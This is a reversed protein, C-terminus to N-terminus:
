DGLLTKKRETIDEALLTGQPGTLLTGLATFPSRQTRKKRTVFQEAKSVPPKARGSVRQKVDVGFIPGLTGPLSAGGGM